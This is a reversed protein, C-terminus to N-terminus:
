PTPLDYNQIASRYARSTQFQEFELRDKIIAKKADEDPLTIAGGGARSPPPASKRIVLKRGIWTFDTEDQMRGAAGTLTQLTIPLSTEQLEDMLKLIVAMVSAQHLKEYLVARLMPDGRLDVIRLHNARMRRIRLFAESGSSLRRAHLPVDLAASLVSADVVLNQKTLGSSGAKFEHGPLLSQERPASAEPLPMQGTAAKPILDTYRPVPAPIPSASSRADAQPKVATGSGLGSAPLRPRRVVPATKESIQIQVPLHPTVRRPAQRPIFFFFAWGLILHAVLGYGLARIIM